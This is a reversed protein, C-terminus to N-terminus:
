ATITVVCTPDGGQFIQGNALLFPQCSNGQYGILWRYRVVDRYPSGFASVAYVRTLVYYGLFCTLYYWFQDGTSLDTFTTTSLYSSAGLAL